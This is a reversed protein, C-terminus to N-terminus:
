KPQVLPQVNGRAAELVAQVRDQTPLAATNTIRQADLMSCGLLLRVLFAPHKGGHKHDRWCRWGGGPWLVMHDSPDADGCLPCHITVAGHPTNPGRENFPLRRDRLFDVWNFTSM